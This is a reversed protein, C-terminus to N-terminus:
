FSTPRNLEEHADVSTPQAAFWSSAPTCALCIALPLFWPTLFGREVLAFLGLGSLVEVWHFACYDLINRNSKEFPAWSLKRKTFVGVIIQVRQLMLSPAFLSSFLTEIIAAKAVPWLRSPKNWMAHIVGLVRPLLLNAAILTFASVALNGGVGTKTNDLIAWLLLTALWVASSGYSLIGCIFHFRSVNHLGATRLLRAHQFNGLCWRADRKLHAILDTPAQEFSGSATPLLRVAWGARRLLAAEVFDHSLITGNWLGRGKLLPLGACNAFAKTRIIANHGFYNAENGMWASLGHGQLGGYTQSAVSQMQQWRSGGPLILPVTQILGSEPDASLADALAIATESNLESDADLIIFADYEAGYQSIWNRINGSKFDVNVPRHHHFAPLPFATAIFQQEEKVHALSSSDSLVHLDFSHRYSDQLSRL